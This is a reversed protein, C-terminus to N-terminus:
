QTKLKKIYRKDDTVKSFAEKVKNEGDINYIDYSDDNMEIQIRDIYERNLNCLLSRLFLSRIQSNTPKGIDFKSRMMCIEKQINEICYDTLTQNYLEKKYNWLNEYFNNEKQIYSEINMNEKLLEKEVYPNVFMMHHLFFFKQNIFLEDDHMLLNLFKIEIQASIKEALEYTSSVPIEPTTFLYLNNDLKDLVKISNFDKENVWIINNNMRNFIKLFLRRVVLFDKNNLFLLEHDSYEQQFQYYIKIKLVYDTLEEYSMKNYLEDEEKILKKLEDINLPLESYVNYIKHAIEFLSDEGM